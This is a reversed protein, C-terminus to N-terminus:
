FLIRRNLIERFFCLSPDITTTNHRTKKKTLPHFDVVQSKEIRLQAQSKSSLPQSQEQEQELEPILPFFLCVLVFLVINLVFSSPFLMFFVGSNKTNAYRSDAM